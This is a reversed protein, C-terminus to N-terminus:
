PRDRDYALFPQTSPECLLYLVLVVIFVFLCYLVFVFLLLCYLVLLVIFFLFFLLSLLFGYVVFLCCRVGYLIVLFLLCCSFILCSCVIFVMDNLSGAVVVQPRDLCQFAADVLDRFVKAFHNKDRGVEFILLKVSCCHDLPHILLFLYYVILSILDVLLPYCQLLLIM